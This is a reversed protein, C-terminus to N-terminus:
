DRIITRSGETWGPIGDFVSNGKGPLHLNESSQITPKINYLTSLNDVIGGPFTLGRELMNPNGVAKITIPYELISGNATLYIGSVTETFFFSTSLTVRETNVSIAEAGSAWLENIIDVLDLYLLPTDGSFVVKIGPGSVPVIGNVQYLINRQQQVSTLASSDESAEETIAKKQELLADLEEELASQKEILDRWIALLDEPNQRELYSANGENTFRVSLLLGLAICLFFLTIQLKPKGKAVQEM